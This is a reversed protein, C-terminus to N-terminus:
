LDARQGKLGNWGSQLATKKDVQELNKSGNKLKYYRGLLSRLNGSSILKFSKLINGLNNLYFLLNSPWFQRRLISHTLDSLNSVNKWKANSGLKKALFCGKRGSIDINIAM